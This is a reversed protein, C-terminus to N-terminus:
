SVFMMFTIGNIEDLDSWKQEFIPLKGEIDAYYQECQLHVSLEYKTQAMHAM